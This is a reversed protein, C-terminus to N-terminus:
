NKYGCGIGVERSTSLARYSTIISYDHLSCTESEPAEKYSERIASIDRIVKCEHCSYFWGMHLVMRSCVILQPYLGKRYILRVSIIQTTSFAFLIKLEM